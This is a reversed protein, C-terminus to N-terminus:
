MFFVILLQAVMIRMFTTLPYVRAYTLAPIDSNTMENAFDLAPPDTSAGSLLGCTEMYDLKAKFRAVM